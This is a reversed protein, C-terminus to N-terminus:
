INFLVFFCFFVLLCRAVVLGTSAPKVFSRFIPPESGLGFSPGRRPSAKPSVELRLGGPHRSQIGRTGSYVVFWVFLLLLLLAIISALDFAAAAAAAAAAARAAAAAAVPSFFFFFSSSTNKILHSCARM